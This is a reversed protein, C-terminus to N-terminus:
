KFKRKKTAPTVGFENRLITNTMHQLADNLANIAQLHELGNSGSVKVDVNAENDVVDIKIVISM